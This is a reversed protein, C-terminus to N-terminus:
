EDNTTEMGTRTAAVALGVLLWFATVTYHFDVNFLYHDFIGVVLGGIVAAHLGLWVSDLREDARFIHRHVYAYRFLSGMLIAFSLLGTVGMRQGISLYVSAVGLYVDIDPSGAFGAGFLPYRGILTLADRYEGFRMQTALDQGQIGEIFRLVYTQTIPLLLMLLGAVIMLPLLRRYRAVAVFGLAAVLGVLAGRSFTLLLCIFLLGVIVATLWRPFLPRKAMMQPGALAGILVLLGGLANPDVATGIAREALEPNDEIYRIVWGGPYGVRQLSNLITNTLDEPLIWLFIGIVATGAGALLIAKVLREVRDWYRAYDVVILVFGISLLLEAFRRLLTPTLPGYQLGFTFAFIAVLIFIILPLSIPATVITRQTGTVIGLAWVGAVGALALDLFTPTLGIDIPLAAFPLLCIVAIIGWFGVEIDRLVVVAAILGLILGMGALPGGFALILGGSVATIGAILGLLLPSETVNWSMNSIGM